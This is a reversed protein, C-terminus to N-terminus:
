HPSLENSLWEHLVKESITARRHAWWYEDPPLLIRVARYFHYLLLLAHPDCQQVKSAFPGNCMVPFFLMYRALGPLISMTPRENVEDTGGRSVPGEAPLFSLILCLGNVATEFGDGIATMDPGADDTTERRNSHQLSADAISVKSTTPDTGRGHSVPINLMDLDLPRGHSFYERFRDLMDSNRQATSQALVEAPNHRQLHPLCLSPQHQDLAHPVCKLFVQKMSSCYSFLSDQLPDTPSNSSTGSPTGTTTANGDGSNSHPSSTFDTSIWIEYHLLLSTVIFADLHMSPFPRSMEQRFRSLARSLHGSAAAPYTADGPRLVALHRAAVCMMANVVYDFRITLQLADNWFEPGGVLTQITRTSFHHFLEMHLLNVNDKTSSPVISPYSNSPM